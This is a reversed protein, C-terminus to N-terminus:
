SPRIEMSFFHNAEAYSFVTFLFIAFDLCLHFSVIKKMETQYWWWQNVGSENPVVDMIIMFLAFIDVPLAESRKGNGVSTIM